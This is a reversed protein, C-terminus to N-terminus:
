SNWEKKQKKIESILKDVDDIDLQNVLIEGLEEFLWEPKEYQPGLIALCIATAQSRPIKTEKILSHGVFRFVEIIAAANDSSSGGALKLASIIHASLNKMNEVAKKQEAILRKPDNTNELNEISDRGRYVDNKLSHPNDYLELQFANLAKLASNYDVDAWNPKLDM